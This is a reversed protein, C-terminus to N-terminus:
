RGAAKILKRTLNSGLIACADTTLHHSISEDFLIKYSSPFDEDGLWGAALMEVRPLASYAFAQDGLSVPRGGLKQAATSFAELNDGFTKALEHGTYGQFAQTYFRGDPLESFSIWRGALPTGDSISFYYALIAQILPNCPQGSVLDMVEFAPYSVRVTEGWIPIHFEGLGEGFSTYAAATRTALTDPDIKGLEARVAEVRQLLPHEASSM